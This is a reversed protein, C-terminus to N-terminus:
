SISPGQYIEGRAVGVLHFLPLLRLLVFRVAQPLVTFCPLFHVLKLHLYFLVILIFFLFFLCGCIFLFLVSLGWSSPLFSLNNLRFLFCIVLFNVRTLLFLFLPGICLFCRPFFTCTFITFCVFSFSSSFSALEIM